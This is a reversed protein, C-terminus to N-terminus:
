RGKMERVIKEAELAQASEKLKRRREKMQGNSAEAGRRELSGSSATTQKAHSSPGAAREDPDPQSRLLSPHEPQPM